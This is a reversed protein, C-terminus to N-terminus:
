QPTEPLKLNIIRGIPVRPLRDREYLDMTPEHYPNRTCKERWHTLTGGRSELDYFIDDRTVWFTYETREWGMVAGVCNALYNMHALSLPEGKADVLIQFTPRQRDM